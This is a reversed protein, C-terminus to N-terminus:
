HMLMPVRVFFPVKWHVQRDIAFRHLGVGFGVHGEQPHQPVLDAQLSGVPCGGADLQPVRGDLGAFIGGADRIGFNAQSWDSYFDDVPFFRAPGADAAWDKFVGGGCNLKLQFGPKEVAIASICPLSALSKLEISLVGDNGVVVGDFQRDFATFKGALQFLDLAPIVTKGQLLVDFVRQGPSDVYLECFKLTVKYTGEPVCLRIKDLDYRCSSYLSQDETGNIRADPVEYVKGPLSQGTVQSVWPQNWCAQALASANPALIDTRWQLGMLGTCGYRRADFADRRMRGVWLQLGALGQGGDSELWPIAWKERGSIRSFSQDVEEAGLGRSIASMPIDKPLDQDFAARDHAPGLVWGCTALRFPANVNKLADIAKRVDAITNTYQEPRNGNWTWDEPTWLWYYDLAHSAMIRRFTGEYIAQADTSREALAKPPILPTETGICTKVGLDHALAFAKSFQDGMRNFVDNCEEPTSPQPVHGRFVEPSWADDEFL